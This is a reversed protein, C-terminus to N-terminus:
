IGDIRIISERNKREVIIKQEIREKLESIHSIIGILKGDVNLEMLCNIAQDLSGVDLSGFGEDVFLTNLEIGGAYGQIMQSLGLALSLAAKFSEGGSLTKVDRQLGSELDLVDLELGQKSNGKSRNDRRYLQYRGQSIQNLIKNAYLLINEFYAALVYREFSIRYNNKGITIDSLDLYIQYLKGDKDLANDIKTIEKITNQLTILASQQKILNDEISKISEDYQNIEIELDNVEIIKTDGLEEKLSDFQNSLSNKLIIFDNLESEKTDLSDLKDLLLLFEEEDKFSLNLLEIYEKNVQQYNIESESLQKQSLIMTANLKALEEKLNFYDNNIQNIEKEINSILQNLNIIMKDLDIIQLQKPNNNILRGNINEIKIELDKISPQLILLESNIEDLDKQNNIVTIRLAELYKIEDNMDEYKKEKISLLGSIKSLERIFLEKSLDEVIKLKSAENNINKQLMDIEQNKLLLRNYAENKQNNIRDLSEKLATLLEQNIKEDHIKAPIPHDISGCVPCPQGSVLENALFGAQQYKFKRELELYHNNENLYRHEIEKFENQFDYKLDEECTLQHHLTSLEHLSVKQQNITNYEQQMLEFDSKLKGIQSVKEKDNDIKKILKEKKELLEKEQNLLQNSKLTFQEKQAVDEFYSTLEKKLNNTDQLEKLWNDKQVQQKNISLYKTAQQNYKNNTEILLNDLDKISTQIREKQRLLEQKNLYTHHLQKSKKLCDIEKLLQDFYDQKNLCEDLQIKLTNLNNLRNNNIKALQLQNTLIAQNQQLDKISMQMEKITTKLDLEYEEIGLENNLKLSSILMERQKFLLEYKDKFVKTKQRLTDELAVCKYTNFLNRLVKEREDSNAHILKTFEGQAIMAIQKFQNADVGILEIIKSNVENVGEIMQKNPLTLIASATKPTKKGSVFYKPSRKIIYDQNHLNFVLQVYTPIEENAGVSRFQDAQRESGSSVGYLAFMIADFIMTKGAGTSGTILFLGNQKLLEFDITTNNFYPGFASLELQKPLM